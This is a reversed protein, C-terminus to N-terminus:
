KVTMSSLWMVESLDPEAGGGGVELGSVLMYPQNGLGFRQGVLEPSSFTFKSKYVKIGPYTRSNTKEGMTDLDKLAVPLCTVMFEGGQTTKAWMFLRFVLGGYGRAEQESEKVTRWTAGEKVKLKYPLEVYKSTMTGNVGPFESLDFPLVTLKAEPANSNIGPPAVQGVNLVMCGEEKGQLNQQVAVAVFM